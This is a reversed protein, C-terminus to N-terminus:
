LDQSRDRVIRRLGTMARNLIGRVSGNSLGLRTEIERHSYNQLYRLEVAERHHEPLTRLADHLVDSTEDHELRRSPLTDLGAIALVRVDEVYQVVKSRRRVRDRALNKAIALLWPKFKAPERLRIRYTYAKLFADQVIDESEHPDQVIAHVQSFVLRSYQRIVAEFASPDGEMAAKITDHLDDTM